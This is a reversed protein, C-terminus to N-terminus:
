ADLLNDPLPLEHTAMVVGDLVACVADAILEPPLPSAILEPLKPFEMAAKALINSYPKCFEVGEATAYTELCQRPTPASYLLLFDARTRPSLSM